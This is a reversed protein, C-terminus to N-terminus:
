GFYQSKVRSLSFVKEPEQVNLISSVMVCLQLEISSIYKQLKRCPLTVERLHNRRKYPLSANQQLFHRTIESYLLTVECLGPMM